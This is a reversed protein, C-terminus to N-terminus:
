KIVIYATEQLIVIISPNGHLQEDPWKDLREEDTKECHYKNQRENNGSHGQRRCMRGAGYVYINIIIFAPIGLIRLEIVAGGIAAGDTSAPADIIRRRIGIIHTYLVSRLTLIVAEFDDGIGFVHIRSSVIQAARCGAIGADGPLKDKFGRNVHVACCM